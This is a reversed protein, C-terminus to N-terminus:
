KGAEVEAPWRARTAAAIEAPSEEQVCHGAGSLEILKARAFITAFRAREKEDGWCLLVPEHALGALGAAVTVLFPTSGVIAKPFIHTAERRDRTALPLRYAQMAEPRLKRRRTALPILFNVCANFNRIAFGGISGGMLKSFRAFHPDRAVPWAWTDLIVVARVREPHRGAVGLPYDLAVCRFRDRLLPRVARAVSM